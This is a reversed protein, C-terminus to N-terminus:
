GSLAARVLGLLRGEDEFELGIEVIYCPLTFRLGRLKVADKATTLLVRAGSRAAERAVGDVDAQTFRHHDAFARTLRLGFGERRLQEFFARPNGVACFAAADNKVARGEHEDNPSGASPNLQALGRRRMRSAIVAARGGSLRAAEARLTELDDALEARTIVVCDARALSERPERLRGRPLLHGGGWPGTADLTVIDLDRAIRLHQFGDDLVFADAGLHERAWRAAAVRDRDCVVSAAGVLREALLRPEDGCEEFDALVREGDSAVVRRREDARGYGRTLVCARRGEGALARAAWEVLPTKGTGGATINGVSIVPVGVKESKLFGARYLRLRTRVLAGYLTGLPALPLPM